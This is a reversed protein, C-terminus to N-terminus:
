PEGVHLMSLYVLVGTIVTRAWGAQAEVWSGRDFLGSQWEPPAEDAAEAGAAAAGIAPAHRGAIALRADLRGDASAHQMSCSIIYTPLHM